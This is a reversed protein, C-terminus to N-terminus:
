EIHSNPTHLLGEYFQLNKEIYHNQNNNKAFTRITNYIYEIYRNSSQLQEYRPLQHQHAYNKHIAFIELEFPRFYNKYASIDLFFEKANRLAFAKAYAYQFM